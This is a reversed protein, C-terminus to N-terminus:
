LFKNFSIQYEREVKEILADVISIDSAVKLNSYRDKMLQLSSVKKFYNYYLTKALSSTERNWGLKDEFEKLEDEAQQIRVEYSNLGDGKVPLRGLKGKQVPQAVTKRNKLTNMQEAFDKMKQIVKVTPVGRRRSIQEYEPITLSENGSYRDKDIGTYESIGMKGGEPLSINKKDLGNAIQKNAMEIRKDYNEKAANYKDQVIRRQNKLTEINNILKNYETRTKDPLSEVREDKQDQGTNMLYKYADTKRVNKHPNAASMFGRFTDMHLGEGERNKANDRVNILSPVLVGIDLQANAKWKRAIERYKKILNNYKLLSDKDLDKQSSLTKLANVIDFAEKYADLYNREGPIKIQDSTWEIFRKRREEKENESINGFVNSYKDLYGQIQSGGLHSPNSALTEPLFGEELKKLISEKLSYLEAYGDGIGKFTVTGRNSNGFWKAIDQEKKGKERYEMITNYLDEPSRTMDPEVNLDERFAEQLYDIPIVVKGEDNKFEVGGTGQDISVNNDNFLNDFQSLLRKSYHTSREIQGRPINTNKYAEEIALAVSEKMDQVVNSLYYRAYASAAKEVENLKVGKAYDSVAIQEKRKLDNKSIDENTDEKSTQGQQKLVHTAVAPDEIEILRELEKLLEKEYTPNSKLFDMSMKKINNETPNDLEEDTQANMSINTTFADLDEKIKPPLKSPNNLFFNIRQDKRDLAIKEGSPLTKYREQKEPSGLAFDIARNAINKAMIPDNINRLRMIGTIIDGLIKDKNPTEHFKGALGLADQSKPTPALTKEKAPIPVPDVDTVPIDRKLPDAVQTQQIVKTIFSDAGRGLMQMAINQFDYMMDVDRWEEPLPDPNPTNANQSIYGRMQREILAALRAKELDEIQNREVTRNENFSELSDLTDPSWREEAKKITYKKLNFGNFGCSQNIKKAIKKLFSM